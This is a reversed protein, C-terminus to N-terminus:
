FGNYSYVTYEEFLQLIKPKTITKAIFIYKWLYKRGLTHSVPYSRPGSCSSTSVTPWWTAPMSGHMDAPKELLSGCTKLKELCIYVSYLIGKDCLNGAFCKWNHHRHQQQLQQQQKQLQHITCLIAVLREMGLDVAVRAVHDPPYLSSMCRPFSLSNLYNHLNSFSQPVTGRSKCHRNNEYILCAYTGSLICFGILKPPTTAWSTLAVTWQTVWVLGPTRIGGPAERLLSGSLRCIIVSHLVFFRKILFNQM